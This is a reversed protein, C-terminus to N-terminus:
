RIACPGLPQVRPEGRLVSDEGRIKGRFTKAGGARNEFAAVTKKGSIGSFWLGLEDRLAQSFIKFDQM